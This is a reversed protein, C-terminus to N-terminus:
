LFPLQSLSIQEDNWKSTSLFWLRHFLLATYVLKGNLLSALVNGVHVTPPVAVFVPSFLGRIGAMIFFAVPPACFALREYFTSICSARTAVLSQPCLWSPSSQFIPQLQVFSMYFWKIIPSQICLMESCVCRYVFCQEICGPLLQERCGSPTAVVLEDYHLHPSQYGHQCRCGPQMDNWVGNAMCIDNKM